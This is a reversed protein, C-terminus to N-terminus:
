VPRRGAQFIPVLGVGAARATEIAREDPELVACFVQGQLEPLGALATVLDRLQVRQDWRAKPGLADGSVLPTPLRHEM